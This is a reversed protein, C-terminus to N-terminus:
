PMSGLAHERSRQAVKMGVDGIGSIARLGVFLM